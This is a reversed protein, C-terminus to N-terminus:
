GSRLITVLHSIQIHSWTTINQHNQTTERFSTRFKVLYLEYSNTPSASPTPQLPRIGLHTRYINKNDHGARIVKLGNVNRVFNM